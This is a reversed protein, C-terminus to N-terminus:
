RRHANEYAELVESRIRGREAVKFGNDGAWERIKALQAKDTGASAAGTRQKRGGLRQANGTYLAVAKDFEKAEDSTLDIVYDVGRYSFTVREGDGVEVNSLDSVTIVQTRQAM